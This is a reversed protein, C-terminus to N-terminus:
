LLKIIIWPNEALDSKTPILTTRKSKEIANMIVLTFQECDKNVDFTNSIFDWSQQKIYSPLTQQCISRYSKSM